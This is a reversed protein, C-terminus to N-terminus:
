YLGHLADDMIHVQSYPHCTPATDWVAASDVQYLVTGAVCGAECVDTSWHLVAKGSGSTIGCGGMVQQCCENSWQLHVLCIQTALQSMDQNSALDLLSAQAALHFEAECHPPDVLCAEPLHQCHAFLLKDGLCYVPYAKQGDVQIGVQDNIAFTFVGLLGLLRCFGGFHLHDGHCPM